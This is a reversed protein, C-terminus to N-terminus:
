LPPPLVPFPHGGRDGSRYLGVAAVQERTQDVPRVVHAERLCLDRASAWHLERVAKASPFRDIDDVEYRILVSFFEGIGPLSRLWRIAEDGASLEDLV